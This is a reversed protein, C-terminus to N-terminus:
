DKLTLSDPYLTRIVKESIYLADPVIENRQDESIFLYDNFVSQVDSAFEQILGAAYNTFVFQQSSLIAKRVNDMTEEPRDDITDVMDLINRITDQIGAKPGRVLGDVQLELRQLLANRKESLIMHVIRDRMWKRTADLDYVINKGRKKYPLGEVRWHRTTQRSVSCAECLARDSLETKQVNATETQEM